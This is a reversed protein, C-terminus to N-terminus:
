VGRLAYVGPDISLEFHRRRCVRCRAMTLGPKGAVEDTCDVRNSLDQCCPEM